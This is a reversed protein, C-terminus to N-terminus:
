PREREPSSAERGSATDDREFEDTEVSEGGSDAHEAATRERERRLEADFGRDFADDFETAAGEDALLAELERELEHETLEGAAYREKLADHHDAVTPAVRDAVSAEALWPLHREVRRAASELRDSRPLEALRLARVLLWAVLAAGLATLTALALLFPLAARLVVVLLADGASAAAVASAVALAGVGLAGVAALAVLVLAVSLWRLRRDSLVSMGDLERSVISFGM